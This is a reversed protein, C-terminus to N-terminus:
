RARAGGVLAFLGLGVAAILAIGPVSAAGPAGGATMPTHQTIPTGTALGLQTKVKYLLAGAYERATATAYGCNVGGPLVDGQGGLEPTAIGSLCQLRLLAHRDGKLAADALAEATAAREADKPSLAAKAISVAKTATSVVASLIPIPLFGLQQGPCYM